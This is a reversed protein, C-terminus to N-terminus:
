GEDEMGKTKLGSVIQMALDDIGISAGLADARDCAASWTHLGAQDTGRLTALEEIIEIVKMTRMPDIGRPMVLGTRNEIRDMIVDTAGGPLSSGVADVPAIEQVAVIRTEEEVGLSEHLDRQYQMAIHTATDRNPAVITRYDMSWTDERPRMAIIVEYLAWRGDTKHHAIQPHDHRLDHEETKTGATQDAM